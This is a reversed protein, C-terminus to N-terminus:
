QTRTIKMVTNGNEVPDGNRGAAKNTVYIIGNQDDLSITNPLGKTPIREIVTYNKADIVAVEHKSRNATYILNQKEDYALGIPSSDYGLYVKQIIEGTESDVVTVNNDNSQSVFIRKNAKDLAINLPCYSWTKYSAELAGSEGDFVLINGQMDKGDTGYVKGRAEDVQLGLLYAGDQDFSRTYTNTKGDIEWVSPNGHDSVYIKNRHEDVAIERIKSKQKGNPILTQKKSKLDIASVANQLSHGVYLTQTRNNLAIGFPLYKGVSISDRVTLDTADLVYVFNDVDRNFGKKPGAVYVAHATPNYVLQYVECNLRQTKQIAFHTTEPQQAAATLSLAALTTALLTKKM